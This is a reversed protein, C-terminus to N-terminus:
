AEMDVVDFTAAPEGTEFSDGTGCAACPLLSFPTPFQLVAPIEEYPTNGPAFGLVSVDMDRQHFSTCAVITGTAFRRSGATGFNVVRPVSRGAQRYGALARTLTMAANVKGVGTYLVPIGAREFVDQAELPLAMVVLWNDKTM